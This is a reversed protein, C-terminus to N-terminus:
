DSSLRVREDWGNVKFSKGSNLTLVKSCSGGNRKAPGAIFKKQELSQYKWKKPRVIHITYVSQTQCCM